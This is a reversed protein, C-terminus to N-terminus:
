KSSVDEGFWDKAIKALTGDERMSELQENIADVLKDNGKNFTFATESANSEEAAIKISDDGEQNLYDLVALKDNVTVDARGQKLLEISQALGEVGVLEAGNEKAIAGFNSTLSQASKKGELDEFSNIDNTDKPVVVVAVSYTYPNSFDYNELRDENIGVQNAILDFRESNLGAFMSDWQTEMFEVKVGMRDAIEKIVEVDYGTLDGEDNHFTFPAYTGETGVTLVGKEMVEDYLGSSGDEGANSNESDDSSGCATLLAILGIMFVWLTFKKM